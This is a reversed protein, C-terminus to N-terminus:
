GVTKQACHEQPIFIRAQSGYRVTLSRIRDSVERGDGLSVYIHGSRSKATPSWVVVAGRPIDQPNLQKQPKGSELFCSSKALQAAAMYAHGGTLSVGMASRVGMKVYRYCYRENPKPKFTSAAKLTAEALHDGISLSDQPVAM